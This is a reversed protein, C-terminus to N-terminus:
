LYCISKAIENEKDAGCLAAVLALGFRTATGAGRSTILQGDIVVASNEDIESLEEAASFHATYRKGGLVGADLLVLPAACIAGILRGSEAQTQLIKHVLPNGRLVKHSPGGPVIVADYTEDAVEELFADAQWRMQNRGETLLEDHTTAVVVKLDARRLLDIPAAAEM